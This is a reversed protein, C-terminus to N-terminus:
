PAVNVEAPAHADFAANADLDAPKASRAFLAALSGLLGRPFGLVCAVFLAGLFIQWL